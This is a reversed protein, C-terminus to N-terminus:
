LQQLFEDFSGFRSKRSAWESAHEQLSLQLVGLKKPRQEFNDATLASTDRHHEASRLKVHSDIQTPRSSVWVRSLLFCTESAYENSIKSFILPSVRVRSGSRM